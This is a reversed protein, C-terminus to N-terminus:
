VSLFHLYLQWVLLPYMDNVQMEVIEHRLLYDAQVLSLVYHIPNILTSLGLVKHYHHTVKVSERVVLCDFPDKTFTAELGGQSLIV